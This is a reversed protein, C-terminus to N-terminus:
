LSLSLIEEGMRTIGSGQRTTGTKILQKEKLLILARKVQGETADYRQENLRAILAGRGLPVPHNDKLIRLVPLLLPTEAIFRNLSDNKARRGSLSVPIDAETIVAREGSSHYMYEVVNRLERFNGPWQHRTLVEMVQPDVSKLAPFSSELQRTIFSPIEVHMERLPVTTIPLVNLRYFLDARFTGKHVENELSKNTACIVRSNVPTNEEAGVRTVSHEELVRLLRVQIYSPADGIEDLFITGGHALEFVGMRGSKKAGTFAGEVYGFLESEMLSEPIAGLNIAVFPQDARHSANHIAQALLEKGTGSEGTILITQDTAAFRSALEKTRLLHADAGWLDRFNYKAAFGKRHLKRRVNQEMIQIQEVNRFTILSHRVGSSMFNHKSCYLEKGRHKALISPPETLGTQVEQNKYAAEHNLNNLLSQLGSSDITNKIDGFLEKVRNNCMLINEHDDLMLIGENVNQLIVDQFGRLRESADLARHIKHGSDVLQRSYIQEFVDLYQMDLNFHLLIKAFTQISITREGIDIVRKIGPPCIHSMGPTIALDFAGADIEKGKWYSEYDLHGIGMERLSNIMNESAEKPHVVVLAKKGNPVMILHELNNGTIVRKGSLVPVNPFHKRAIEMMFEGSTLVLDPQKLPDIIDDTSVGDVVIEHGIVDSTISVLHTKVTKDTTLITLHGKPYAM